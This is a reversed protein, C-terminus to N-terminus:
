IHVKRECSKQNFQQLFLDFNYVPSYDLEEEARQIDVIRHISKPIKRGLTAFLNTVGPYYREIVLDAQRILEECDGKNFPVKSSICFTHNILDKAFITKHIAHAVDLADVGGYLKKFNFEIPDEKFFRGLRLTICDLNYNKRFYECIFESQMKCLDNIDLPNLPTKENVWISKELFNRRSIGYVSTSSMHIVRKVGAEAATKLINYTGIVNVDLFNEESYHGIHVGHLAAAHVVIDQNKMIGKLSEINRIDVIKLPFDSNVQQFDLLTIECGRQHLYPALVKALAGSGGTILVRM